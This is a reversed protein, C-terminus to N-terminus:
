DRPPGDLERAPRIGIEASRNEVPVGSRAAARLERVSSRFSGGRVTALGEGYASSTWEAVNGLAHHFGWPNPELSTVPAVEPWGDDYPFSADIGCGANEKKILSRADNGPWWRTRTGARAAYEWRIEDPLALGLHRLIRASEACSVEAVPLLGNSLDRADREGLARRWQARTMEFKSLFFPAVRETRVPSENERALPDVEAGSRRGPVAVESGMDFSGGPVLVLVLGSEPGCLLAGGSDRTAPEGSPLHAFEWLGSLPDRGLPVLGLQPVIELGAYAPCERPDRISDIARRWEEAHDELSRARLTRAVQLRSRVDAIRGKSPDDDSLRSLGAVLASLVDNRWRDEADATRARTEGSSSSAEAAIAPSEVASAPTEDGIVSRAALARAHSPLRAVLAEADALWAEMAPIKEPTAPWLAEARLELDELRRVDALRLIEAKARAQVWSVAALGGLALVLAALLASALAKNRAIWKRLEAWAGREYARVVRGETWARLDSALELVGSYRESPDRAMARACIAVLEPPMASDLADVPSPPGARVATLTEEPTTREAYPRRGCLIRYLIAGLGYVDARADVDGGIAQEPAMYSPTGVIGGASEPAAASRALGWDVVYVEGYAGVIVNSPKLDRHVVGAAHAYALTDCVRLLIELLRLRSPGADEPRALLEALTAGAVLPMTFWLRGDVDVGVDHVPVIGPHELRATLRAEALFRRLDRAGAGRSRAVKMAVDRGLDGDHVRFVEGMGGSAFRGRIEYRERAPRATSLRALISELEDTPGGVDHEVSALVSSDVRISGLLRGLRLWGAHLGRLDAALESHDAVAAEIDIGGEDGARKALSAFIERAVDSARRDISARTDIERAIDSTGPEIEVARDSPPPDLERALDPARPDIGRAVDPTRSDFGRALKSDEQELGPSM